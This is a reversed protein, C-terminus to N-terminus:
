AVVLNSVLQTVKSGLGKGRGRSAVFWFDVVTAGHVRFQIFFVLIVRDFAEKAVATALFVTIVDQDSPKSCTTGLVADNFM